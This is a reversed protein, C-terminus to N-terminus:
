MNELVLRKMLFIDTINIEEDENIDARKLQEGKLKWSEKSEAIVHRKLLLLDTVNVMKDGNIDGKKSTNDFVFAGSVIYDSVTGESKNGANDEVQKVWIYRTGTIENGITFEEGSRYEKWEGEELQTNSTSLYYQYSNEESLNSGGEDQVTITVQTTKPINNGETNNTNPTITITPITKDIKDINIPEYTSENGLKDKVKIIIGNTNQKYTKTNETQWTDGNDFSYGETEAIGIGIDEANVVLTVDDRTWDQANGTVSTITPNDKDINSVTATVSQNSGNIDTYNFTYQDNQPFIHTDKKDENTITEGEAIYIKATVDQNTWKTTSYTITGSPVVVVVVLGNLAGSNVKFKVEGNHVQNVNVKLKSKDENFECNTFEFGEQSYYLSNNEDSAKKIMNPLNIEQNEEGGTPVTIISKVGYFAQSGITTLSEPLDTIILSSCGYFAYNEISTVGEPIEVSTLNSCEIFAFSGISTVSGPINYTTDKKGGPYQILVAKEKNFLVGNEDSYNKNSKNVEINTLSSCEYFARNGISAVREPIEISTLSSCDKFAYDGISTVGEPIKISTLSSCYEFANNGISTVGEPITISTLRSCERFVNYDISTVGEPITISTLSNCREFASDGISTVSDPIKINTLSSCWRFTSNGISTVSEPITISTLNSCWFFADDGISIIGENIIVKKILKQESERWSCSYSKMNGRGSITLTGENDLIAIVSEDGGESIDWRSNVIIIDLGSLKGEKISITGKQNSDNLVVKQEDESFYCNKLVIDNSYLIDENDKARKLLNPLNIETRALYFIKADKFIYNGIDTVSYPIEINTLSSCGEFAYSGISTVSNPIKVSTLSSCGSFAYNGINTVGNPIEVSTLNSCGYFSSSEISTVGNPIIYSSDGKGIPYIIIKTKEKNFLVGKESSYNKNMENVEISTLSSCKDFASKAISTVGEPINISTLSSCGSFVSQEISTVKEPINISTLGSCRDFANYGIITVSNPIKINTLSSCNAFAGLGIVTVSNPIEVNTLSRCSIFTYAAISTVNNSIKINTLSSCCEFASGGISTVSNPIEISTLSSCGSFAYNGISTVSGPINYTTDKKGGPYQILETKQKNFLVGKEDSYNKNSKNVEINTLSSCNEFADDGIVTVSEPIEINTLSSCSGFAFNEISTVSNPIEISTLSRCSYFADRGISTIGQTIIINKIKKIDCMDHWKVDNSASWNKMKGTGSITLTGEDDLVAKVSGDGNESIDWPDEVTGSGIVGSEAQVQFIPLIALLTMNILVMIVFSILITKLIKKLNNQM